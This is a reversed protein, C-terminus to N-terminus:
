EGLNPIRRQDQDAPRDNIERPGPTMVFPRKAFMYRRFLNRTFSRPRLPLFMSAMSDASFLSRNPTPEAPHAVREIGRPLLPLKM